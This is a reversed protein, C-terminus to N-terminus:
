NFYHGLSTCVPRLRALSFSAAFRHFSSHSFDCTCRARAYQFKSFSNFVGVFVCIFRLKIWTCRHLPSFNTRHLECGCCLVACGWVISSLNFNESINAAPVHYRCGFRQRKQRHLKCSADEIARLSCFYPFYIRRRGIPRIVAVSRDANM